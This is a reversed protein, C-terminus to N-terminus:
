EDDSVAAAADYRPAEAGRGALDVVVLFRAPFSCGLNTIFSARRNKQFSM